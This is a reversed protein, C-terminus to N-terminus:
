DWYTKVHNCGNCHVLEGSICLSANSLLFCAVEAIEEPVYVRGPVNKCAMNGDSAKAYDSTMDTLTVGPAIANIRMGNKYVRHSLGKILSNLAAKTLGYPRDFGQDGTESTIFLLNRNGYEKGDQMALFAKALFFPGKINTDFQLDFQEESVNQIGDEHLSVGANSVLSTIEGGLQTEAQHLMETINQINCIDNVIYSCRDGLKEVASQLDHEKRGTIVVKAGESIFKEAMAFGLGKGGGTIVINQNKLVGGSQIQTVNVTVFQDPQGYIFGAVKKLLKKMM